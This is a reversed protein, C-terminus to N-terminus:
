RSEKVSRYGALIKLEDASLDNTIGLLDNPTVNLANAIRVLTSVLPETKGTITRSLQTRSIGIEKALRSESWGRAGCIERIREGLTNHIKTTM